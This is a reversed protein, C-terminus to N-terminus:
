EYNQRSAYYKANDILMKIESKASEGEINNQAEEFCHLAEQYKKLSTYIKGLKLNIEGYSSIVQKQDSVEFIKLYLKEATENYGIKALEDGLEELLGFDAVETKFLERLSQNAQTFRGPQILCLLALYGWTDGNFPDYINAQSLAEEAEKLEGIRLCSIGLGLWALSSNSKSEVSRAFIAKADGWSKRYLYIYGLRLYIIVNHQAQQKQNKIKLARLFTEECEYLKNSLYCINAKIMLVEYSNKNSEIIRNVINLCQDYNGKFQQIQCQILDNKYSNLDFVLDLCKEVLEFLNNKSFFDILEVYIENWQENNLQPGKNMEAENQIPKFSPVEFPNPHKKHNAKSQLLGQNRLFIREAIRKYKEALKTENTFKLYAFSILINYLISTPNKEILGRLILLSEKYRNRRLLLCAMLIQYEKNEVDYILAKELMEEAKSLNKNRLLFKTYAFYSTPERKNLQILNKFNKEALEIQNLIEYDTALRILKDKDSEKTINQLIRDREKQSQEYTTVIDEHLEERKSSVLDSLTQRTQEMLFVYLESYFQDRQDTTIGTISGSKQFKDRCIKVISKKLREKLVKYKGDKNFHFLFQEKRAQAEQAKQVTFAQKKENNNNSFNQNSFQFYELALSEMALVLESKFESICQKSPPQQPIPPPRPILDRITPLVEEVLPSIARDMSITIKIYTKELNPRPIEAPTEPALIQELYCRKVVEVTGPVEFDSLDVWARMQVQNLDNVNLNKNKQKRAKVLEEETLTPLKTFYIYEGKEDYVREELIVLQEGEKLQVGEAKEYNLWPYKYKDELTRFNKEKEDLADWEAQRRREEEEEQEKKLRLAEQEEPTLVPEPPPQHKPDPKAPKKSKAAAAEEAEKIEKETLQRPVIKGELIDIGLFKTQYTFLNPNLDDTTKWEEPFGYVGHVKISLNLSEIPNNIKELLSLLKPNPETM